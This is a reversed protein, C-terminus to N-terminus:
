LLTPHTKGKHQGMRFESLIVMPFVRVVKIKWSNESILVRSYGLWSVGIHFEQLQFVMFNGQVKEVAKSVTFATIPKQGKGIPSIKTKNAAKPTKATKPTRPM